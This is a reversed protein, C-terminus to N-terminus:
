RKVRAFAQDLLQNTAAASNLETVAGVGVNPNRAARGPHVAQSKGMIAVAQEPTMDTGFALQAALAVNAAAAPASFIAACREREAATGLAVGRAEAAADKKKDKDEDEDDMAKMRVAYDDDSENDKRKRKDDEPPDTDAAAATLGRLHAFGLAGAIAARLTSM